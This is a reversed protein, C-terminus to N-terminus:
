SVRKVVAHKAQHHVVIKDPILNRELRVPIHVGNGLHTRRLGDPQALAVGTRSLARFISLKRLSHVMRYVQVLDM